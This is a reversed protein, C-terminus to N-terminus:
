TKPPDYKRPRRAMIRGDGDRVFEPLLCQSLTRKRIKAKDVAADILETGHGRNPPAIICVSKNPFVSRVMQIAPVLDSDRSIVLARDYTGKYAENLLTLAINVDTEKEEHSLWQNSCGPCRRHKKKFKGMIPTVGVARLAAVYAEHRRKKGPLWDAYASFYYVHCLRQGKGLVFQESLSWLNVWKLHSEGLDAIAHYLNFGDIFCAVRDSSMARNVFLFGVPRFGHPAAPSVM